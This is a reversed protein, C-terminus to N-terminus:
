EKGASGEFLGGFAEMQSHGFRRSFCSSCEDEDTQLWSMRMGDDGFGSLRSCELGVPPDNCSGSAASHRQLSMVMLPIPHYAPAGGDTLSPFISPRVSLRVSLHIFLKHDM